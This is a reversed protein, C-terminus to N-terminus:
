IYNHVNAISQEEGNLSTASPTQGQTICFPKICELMIHSTDRMQFAAVWNFCKDLYRIIQQM